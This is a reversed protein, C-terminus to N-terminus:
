MELGQLIGPKIRELKETIERWVREQVEKGDAATVVGGREAVVCSSLHKGHTERGQSVAHVLTRSGYETTRAFLLKNFWFIWAVLGTAERSLESCLMLDVRAELRHAPTFKRTASGLAPMM